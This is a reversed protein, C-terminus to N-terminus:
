FFSVNCKKKNKKENKKDAEKKRMKDLTKLARSKTVRFDNLSIGMEEAIEKPKRGKLREQLVFHYRKNKLKSLENKARSLSYKTNEEEEEEEEEEEDDIEIEIEEEEAFISEQEEQEEFINEQESYIKEELRGNDNDKPLRIEISKRKQEKKVM